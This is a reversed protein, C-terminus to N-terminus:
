TGQCAVGSTICSSGDSVTGDCDLVNDESGQCNVNTLLRPASGEGFPEASM